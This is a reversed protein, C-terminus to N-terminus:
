CDRMVRPRASSPHDAEDRQEDGADREPRQVLLLEGDHRDVRLLSEVEVDESPSIGGSQTWDILGTNMMMRDPTKAAIQVLSPVRWGDVGTLNPSPTMMMPM